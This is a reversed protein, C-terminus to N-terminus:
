LRTKCVKTTNKSGDSYYLCEIYVGKSLANFNNGVNVGNVNYYEKRVVNKNVDKIEISSAYDVSVMYVNFGSSASYLYFNTAGGTHSFVGKDIVAGGTILRGLETDKDGYAVVLERTASSSSSMGYVTITCSGTVDFGLVRGYPTTADTWSGSGGLKMRHTFDIGDMSKSNEEIIVTKDAAAYITFGSVSTETTITGLANFADSSVNWVQGTVIGMVFLASLLTYVKKM